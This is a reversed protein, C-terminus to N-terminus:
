ILGGMSRIATTAVRVDERIGQQKHRGLTIVAKVSPAFEGPVAARIQCHGM